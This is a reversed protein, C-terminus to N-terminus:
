YLSFSGISEYDPPHRHLDTKPFLQIQQPHRVDDNVTIPNVGAIYKPSCSIVNEM